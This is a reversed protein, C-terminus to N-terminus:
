NGAGPNANPDDPPDGKPDNPPTPNLMGMREPTMEPQRSIGILDRVDDIAPDDPTLVAGATSMEALTRAIQEADKFSADEPELKPKIDDPLGNLAWVVDVIDRDYTEAMDGLTANVNLYLNRSVNESLARSGDGERGVLLDQTGMILAMDFSLRRIADGLEEMSKPEGTLLEMSWQLMNSVQTGSDTKVFFPQSDLLLSTEPQVSQLRAFEAIGRVMADADAKTFLRMGGKGDPIEKTGIMANIASLPARGIPIGSLDREFGIRELRLLTKIRDAPDVLQRYWGFGEPSDSLTDDVLYVVKPRPLYIERGDVPRRQRMGLVTGNEDVDWGAITHQPRPEISALGIRGDDRNMALWEHIGFGHFKFSASRRVNRKWSTQKMGYIVSEMFEAAELAEPKDSPPKAKWTPRATLNFFYRVSAAVISIDALMRYADAYRRPGAAKYNTEGHPVAVAGGVVATGSVGVESFPSSRRPAIMRKLMEGLDM